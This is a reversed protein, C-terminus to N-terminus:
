EPLLARRQEVETEAKAIRGPDGAKRARELKAEAEALRDRLATLFPNSAASSQRWEADVADRVRQEAARMRDDLRRMADRPVHGIDDFQAQLDRLVSQAAKPDSVDIKEAAAIIEEKKHQNGVQEADREAFTESRRSFFADQAARFRTWLADEVDRGARGAAKWETMLDRMANATEKWDSSTSLEEARKILREKVEKVSGREADLQAFHQGRRRGFADRAAAFRKWLTDDTKRDVGKIQRWDDVIARLRDGSAKWATSSEAITEAETVLAEKAAVADARAQQRAAAAEGAKEEAATLLTDLRGALADLDGIAAATALQGKMEAAHTRTHAPDGAGSALRKELLTVETELDDYRRVYFAMGAEADGAQWSGIAREGDATRVYVTGDADIRGWEM